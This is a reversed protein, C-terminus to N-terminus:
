EVPPADPDVADLADPDAPEEEPAEDGPEEDAEPVDPEAREAPETEPEPEVAGGTSADFVAIEPPSAETQEDEDTAVVDPASAGPEFPGADEREPEIATPRRRDGFDPATAPLAPELRYGRSGGMKRLVFQEDNELRFAKNCCLSLAEGRAKASTVDPFIVDFAAKGVTQSAKFVIMIGISGKVAHLVREALAYSDQDMAGLRSELAAVRRTLADILRAAERLQADHDDVRQPLSPRRLGNEPRQAAKPPQVHASHRGARKLAIEAELSAKWDDASTAAIGTSGPELAPPVPKLNTKSM